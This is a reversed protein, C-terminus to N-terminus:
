PGTEVRNEPPADRRAKKVAIKGLKILSQQLSPLDYDDRMRPVLVFDFGNVLDSKGLRFAERLLRRLRNRRVANGFKKSVSLGVRAHALGNERTYVILVDDAASRRRDYVAQFDAPKRIHEHKRFTPM